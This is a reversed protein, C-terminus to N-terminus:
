MEVQGFAARGAGGADPDVGGGEVVVAPRRGVGDDLDDDVVHREEEVRQRHLEDALAAAEVEDDVGDDGDAAVGVAVQQADPGTGPTPPHGGSDPLREDMQLDVALRRPLPEPGRPGAGGGEEGVPAGGPPLPRAQPGVGGLQARTGASNRGEDGGPMGSM